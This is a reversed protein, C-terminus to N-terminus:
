KKINFYLINISCTTIVIKTQDNGESDRYFKVLLSQNYRIVELLKYRDNVCLTGPFGHIEHGFENPVMYFVFNPEVEKGCRIDKFKRLLTFFKLGKKLIKGEWTRTEWKYSVREVSYLCTTPTFSVVILFSFFM